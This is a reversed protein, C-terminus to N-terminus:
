YTITTTTTTSSQLQNSLSRLFCFRATLLFSVCHVQFITSPQRQQFELSSVECPTNNASFMQFKSSKWNSPSRLCELIQTISVHIQHLQQQTTTPNKNNNSKQQQQIKKTTPNKNNNSKQQQQIKTTTPNKNNNFNKQQQFKQKQIKKNNNFNKTTASTSNNNNFHQQLTNSQNYFLGGVRTSLMPHIEQPGEM